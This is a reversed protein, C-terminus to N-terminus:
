ILCYSKCVIALYERYNSEKNQEENREREGIVGVWRGMCVCGHVCVWVCVGMCVCGYAGVFM